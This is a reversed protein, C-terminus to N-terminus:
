RKKVPAATEPALLYRDMEGLIAQVRQMRQQDSPDGPKIERRAEELTGRLNDFHWRMLDRRWEADMAAGEPGRVTQLAAYPYHGLYWFKEELSDATESLGQFLSRTSSIGERLTRDARVMAREISEVRGTIRRAFERSDRILTPVESKYRKSIEAAVKLDELTGERVEKVKGRASDLFEALKAKMDVLGQNGSALKQELEPRINAISERAQEVKLKGDDVNRDLGDWIGPLNHAVQGFTADMRETFNDFNRLKQAMPSEAGGGVMEGVSLLIEAVQDMSKALDSYMDGSVGLLVRGDAPDYPAGTGSIIEVASESMITATVRVQDDVRYRKADGEALVELGVLAMSRGALKERIAADIRERGVGLLEEREEDTLPLCSLHREAFEPFRQLAAADLELLEIRRVRGIELGNYLVLADPHLTTVNAFAVPLLQRGRWSRSVKGYVFLMAVLLGICFTLFIGAKVEANSIRGRAM